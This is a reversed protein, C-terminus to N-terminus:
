LTERPTEQDRSAWNETDEEWGDDDLWTLARRHYKGRGENSEFYCGIRSSLYNIATDQNHNPEEQIRELARGIAAKTTAPKTQRDKPICSWVRDVGPMSQYYYKESSSTSPSTSISSSAKSKQKDRGKAGGKWNPNGGGKRGAEGCLWRKKEDRLMRRSSYVIGDETEEWEVVGHSVLEALCGSLVEFPIGELMALHERTMPRNETLMLKGRVPSKHMRCLMQIWLGKAALSCTQLPDDSLWDAAYFQFAPIKKSPM